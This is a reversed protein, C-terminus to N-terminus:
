HGEAANVATTFATKPLHHPEEITGVYMHAGSVNVAIQGPSQKLLADFPKAATKAATATDYVYVALSAGHGLETSLAATPVPDDGGAEEDSVEYGAAELRSKIQASDDGSAAATTGQSSDSTTSDAATPEPDGFSLHAIKWAGSQKTLRAPQTAGKVTATATTDTVKVGTVTVKELAGAADVDSLDAIQQYVAPCDTVSIEPLQASVYATLDAKASPALQNCAETYQGAGLAQLYTKTTASVQQADSPGKPTEPTSTGCAALLLAAALMVGALRLTNM